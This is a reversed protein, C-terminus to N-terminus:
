TILEFHYGNKTKQYRNNACKSVSKYNLKMDISCDKISNYVKGTEICRVPKMRHTPKKGNSFLSKSIDKKTKWELNDSENKEETEMLILQSCEM